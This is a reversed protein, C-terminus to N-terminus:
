DLLLKRIDEGIKKPAVNPGYREIVKGEKDVLFKTFNWKIESSLLGKQEKKLYKYLPTADSGNVNIKAFLPFTVGFNLKCVEEMESDSVPEQGMFQNCPFGLVALGNESYEQYLKELGNFQPAFGCKTATNVILLVNGKYHELSLENGSPELVSFQHVSM